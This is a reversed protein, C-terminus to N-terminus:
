FASKPYCDRLIAGFIKMFLRSVAKARDYHKEKGFAKFWLTEWTWFKYRKSNTLTLPVPVNTWRAPDIYRDRQGESWWRRRKRCESHRLSQRLHTPSSVWQADASFEWDWWLIESLWRCVFTPSKTPSGVCWRARGKLKVSSQHKSVHLCPYHHSKSQTWSKIIIM